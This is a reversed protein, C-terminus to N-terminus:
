LLAAGRHLFHDAKHALHRLVGVVRHAGDLLGIGSHLFHRARGLRSRLRGGFRPLLGLFDRQRRLLAAPGQVFHGGQYFVDGTRPALDTGGHRLKRLRHRADRSEHVGDGLDRVLRVKGSWFARGSWCVLALRSSLELRDVLLKLSSSAWCPSLSRELLLLFM